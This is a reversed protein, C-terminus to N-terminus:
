TGIDWGEDEETQFWPRRLEKEEREEQDAVVLARAKPSDPAPAPDMEIDGGMQWAALVLASVLDGHGGGQRPLLITIAGNPTPRWIVGKLQQLLRPHDPLDVRGGNLLVRFRVYPDTVTVPASLFNLGFEEFHEYVTAKYHGDAMMSEVGARVLERAFDRVVEGPKLPAGPAPQREIIDGVRFRKGVHHGIVLAASDHIFALDGGATKVTGPEAKAPLELWPRVAAKIADAAFWFQTGSSMPVAGYERMRTPEDPELRHTDDETITPNAVWTPASAVMQADTDGQDFAEAHADLTSWPSSSLISKANKQTALTPRLSALVESAPNAGTDKDRWKAVEDALFGIATFGSVGAITAAYVKFGLNRGDVVIGYDVPRFRIGLVSLIAKITTLRATAEEKSVSVIAFYGIDGPPVDHLGHLTEIVAVRCLTSSKGGRRGVRPVLRQKGSRYFRELTDRWWPSMAPFGARVLREDLESLKAFLDVSRHKARRALTAIIANRDM